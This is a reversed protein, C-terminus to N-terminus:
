RKERWVPFGYKERCSQDYYFNDVAEYFQLLTIERYQLRTNLYLWYSQTM